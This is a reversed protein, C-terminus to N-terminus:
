SRGFVDKVAAIVVAIQEDTIAQGSPLYLGRRSIRETVPYAEGKFLGRRLLAPQEHMGVFFPRTQVGREGLRAALEAADFGVEYGLVLGYMWYVNKVGPREVPLHLPLGALGASYLRAMERKRDVVQDVRELQGVGLAAQM